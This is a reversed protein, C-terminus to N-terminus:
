GSITGLELVVIKQIGVSMRPYRGIDPELEEPRSVVLWSGEGVVPVEVQEVGSVVRLANRLFGWKSRLNQRM